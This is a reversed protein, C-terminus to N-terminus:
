PWNRRRSEHAIQRRRKRKTQRRQEALRLERTRRDATGPAPPHILARRRRLRRRTARSSAFRTSKALGAARHAEVISRAYEAKTLQPQSNANQRRARYSAFWWKVFGLLSASDRRGAM